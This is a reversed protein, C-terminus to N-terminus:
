GNQECGLKELDKVFSENLFPIAGFRGQLYGRQINYESRIGFESLPYLSSAGERDKEAFWIQDRRLIDLNLLNADHTTFIFQAGNCNLKPDNFLKVIEKALVPHLSSDLEDILLVSGKSLARLIPGLISFYAITGNSEETADVAYSKSLAGQHLLAIRQRTSPLEGPSESGGPGKLILGMIEKMRPEFEEEKITFDVIGLDALHLWTKMLDAIKRDESCIQATSYPSRFEPDVFHFGERFWEFVPSLLEHNNQAAASLFLSNNRTLAEIARNKGTLSRGFTIPKGAEREYWVVKRGSPFAFMWESIIKSDDLEFGFTLREGDLLFDAEFYSSESQNDNLKFPERPIKSDRSGSIQSTEITRDFYSLARLINTKGSANAGYIAASRVVRNKISPVTVLNEEHEHGSTAVLSLEQEDRL